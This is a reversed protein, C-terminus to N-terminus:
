NFPQGVLLNRKKTRLNPNGRISLVINGGGPKESKNLKLISLGSALLFKLQFRQNVPYAHSSDNGERDRCHEGQGGPTDIKEAGNHKSDDRRNAATGHSIQDQINRYEPTGIQVVNPDGQTCTYSGKRRM